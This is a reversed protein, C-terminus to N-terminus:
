AQRCRKAYYCLFDEVAWPQLKQLEDPFESVELVDGAKLRRGPLVMKAGELAGAHLYVKKPLYADGRCASIRFAVDYFYLVGLGQTDPRADELLERVLDQIADFDACKRFRPETEPLIAMAARMADPSFNWNKQQHEDPHGNVKRSEAAKKIAEKLTMNRFRMVEAKGREPDYDNLAQALTPRRGATSM